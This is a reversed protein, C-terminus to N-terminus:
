ATRRGAIAWNILVTLAILLPLVALWWYSLASASLQCGTSAGGMCHELQWAALRPLGTAIVIAFGLFLVVTIAILRMGTRM